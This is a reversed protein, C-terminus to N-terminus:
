PEFMRNIRKMVQAVEAPSAVLDTAPVGLQYASTSGDVIRDISLTETQRAELWREFVMAYIAPDYAPVDDAPGSPAGERYVDRWLARLVNPPADAIERPHRPTQITRERAAEIRARVERTPVPVIFRLADSALLPEAWDDAPQALEILRNGILASEAILMAASDPNDEHWRLVADRAWLGVAKKVAAHTFGDIEPYRALIEPTEFPSRAVDWQLLSVRREARHAMRALQQVLLSKGVGPLGALFVIRQHRALIELRARVPWDAPLVIDDPRPAIM